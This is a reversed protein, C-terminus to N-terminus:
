TIWESRLYTMAKPSMGKCNAHRNSKRVHYCSEEIVKSYLLRQLFHKKKILSQHSFVKGTNIQEREGWNTHVHAQTHIPIALEM